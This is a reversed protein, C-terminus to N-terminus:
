PGPANRLLDAVASQLGPLDDPITGWVEESDVDGYAHVLVNRFGIIEALDPVM